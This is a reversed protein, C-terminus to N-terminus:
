HLFTGKKSIIIDASSREWRGIKRWRFRDYYYDIYLYYSVGCQYSGYSNNGLDITVVFNKKSEFDQLSMKSYDTKFTNFHVPCKLASKKCWFLTYNNWRYMQWLPGYQCRVQITQGTIGQVHKPPQWYESLVIDVDYSIGLSIVFSAITYVRSAYFM